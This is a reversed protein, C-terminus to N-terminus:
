GSKGSAGPVSRETHGARAARETPSDTPVSGHPQPPGSDGRPAGPLMVKVRNAVDRVGHVADVADEIARKMARDSVIGELTVEGDKVTVTVDGTDLRLDSALRECVSDLLQADTRQWGRPGARRPAAPKPAAAPATARGPSEGRPDDPAGPREDGYHEAGFREAPDADRVDRRLDAAPSPRYPRETRAIPGRRQGLGAASAQWDAGDGNGAALDAGAGRHRPPEPHQWADRRRAAEPDDWANRQRPSEPDRWADRRAGPAPDAAPAHGSGGFGGMDGRGAADDHGGGAGGWGGRRTPHSQGGRGPASGYPGISGMGGLDTPGGYGGAGGAWGRTDADDYLNDGGLPRGDATEGRHGTHDPPADLLRPRPRRRDDPRDM